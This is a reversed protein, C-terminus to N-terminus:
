ATALLLTSRVEAMIDEPMVGGRKARAMELTAIKATRVVCPVALGCEAFRSELSIDGQWGKNVASTIMLVWILDVGNAPWQRSVVLAPRNRVRPEEVFPFPVWVVDGSAITM